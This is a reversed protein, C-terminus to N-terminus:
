EAGGNLAKHEKSLETILASLTWSQNSPTCIAKLPVYVGAGKLEPLISELTRRDIGSFVLCEESPPNECEQQPAAFGKFGCLLGIQCNAESKSIIRLKIKRDACIKELAALKGADLNYAAINEPATIIRSKM